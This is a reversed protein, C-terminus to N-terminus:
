TKEAHEHPVAGPEHRLSKLTLGVAQLAAALRDRHTDFLTTGADNDFSVALTIQSGRLRLQAGFGGLRPLKLQLHTTWGAAGEEDDPHQERSRGGEAAEPDRQIRWQAPQGPWAHGDFRLPKGDLVDLQQQLVRALETRAADSESPAADKLAEAARAQPEHALQDLPLRGEAWARLHSEYFLGSHKVADALAAAREPASM